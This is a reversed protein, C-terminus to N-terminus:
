SNSEPADIVELVPIAQLVDSQNVNGHVDEKFTARLIPHRSVLLDIANRFVDADVETLLRAALTINYATGEPSLKHLYWLAEQGRSVRGTKVGALVMAKRVNLAPPEKFRAKIQVALEGVTPDGLLEGLEVRVGLSTEVAHVLEIAALSDLGYSILSKNLEINAPQLGVKAGILSLFYEVAEGVGIPTALPPGISEQTDMSPQWAVVVDLRGTIFADRCAGRQIKGSTTKPITGARVLVIGSPELEQEELVSRRINAVVEDPSVKVRRDIEQVVVLREEGSAQVSFAAGSGARLGPHSKEVTLEIDQPYYNRGRIIILDKLRGTVFLDGGQIFGLDGTRLYP